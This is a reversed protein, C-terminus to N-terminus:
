GVVSGSRLAQSREPTAQSHPLVVVRARSAAPAHRGDRAQMWFAKLVTRQIAERIREIGSSGPGLRRNM